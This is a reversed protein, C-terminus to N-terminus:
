QRSNYCEQRTRRPYLPWKEIRNDIQQPHHHIPVAFLSSHTSRVTIFSHQSHHHILAALPSLHTNRITIFSHQSRHHILAAFPSSHTSNITIFSHQSHHHILVTLPLLHTNRITIFSHQSYHHILAARTKILDNGVRKRQRNSQRNDIWNNIISEDIQRNAASM